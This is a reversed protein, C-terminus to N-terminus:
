TLKFLNALKYNSSKNYMIKRAKVQQSRKSKKKKYGIGLLVSFQKLDTFGFSYGVSLQGDPVSLM